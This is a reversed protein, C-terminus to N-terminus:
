ALLVGYYAMPWNSDVTSSLWKVAVLLTAALLLLTIVNFLTIEFYM